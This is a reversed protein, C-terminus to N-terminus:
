RLLWLFAAVLEHRDEQGSLLDLLVPLLDRVLALLKENGSTRASM